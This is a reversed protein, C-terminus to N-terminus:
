WPRFPIVSRSVSTHLGALRTLQALAHFALESDPTPGVGITTIPSTEKNGLSLRYYPIIVTKGPRFGWTRDEFSKPGSVLRWEREEAFSPHKILPAVEVFRSMIQSLYEHIASESHPDARLTDSCADLTASVIARLADTQATEEYLCQCLEFGHADATAQLREADFAIAYGHGPQCYSRWQSLLDGEESLSFVCVNFRKLRGIEDMSPNYLHGLKRTELEERLPRQFRNIAFQFEQADNLFHINTAWIEHTQIIGILGPASTYHYLIRRDRGTVAGVTVNTPAALPRLRYKGPM